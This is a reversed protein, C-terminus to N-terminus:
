DESGFLEDLSLKGEGSVAMQHAEAIMSEVAPRIKKRQEKFAHLLEDGSLGQAILDSLIEESFSGDDYYVPRIFLGEPRLECIAESGFNLEEFYKQPITIQRKTSISINKSEM